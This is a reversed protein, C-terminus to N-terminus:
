VRSQEGKPKCRESLFCSKPRSISIYFYSFLAAQPYSAFCARFASPQLGFFPSLFLVDVFAAGPVAPAVQRHWTCGNAIKCCVGGKGEAPAIM